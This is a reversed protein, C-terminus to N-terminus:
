VSNAGRERKVHCEKCLSVLNDLAHREDPDGFDRAPEIHHVELGWGYKKIHKNQSMGCDQCRFEDRELAERRRPKWLTGYVGDAFEGTYEKNKELGAKELANNWTGWTDRYPKTSFDAVERFEGITPTYGLERAVQKLKEILKDQSIDYQRNEKLGAENLTNNWTGFRDFYPGPSYRGYERMDQQTPASGLKEALKQIENLLEAKEIGHTKNPELGCKELAKNWTGFHNNYTNRGFRGKEEMEQKTPARGLEAALDQLAELLESDNVPTPM